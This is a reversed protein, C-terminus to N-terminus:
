VKGRFDRYRNYEGTVKFIINMILDARETSLNSDLIFTLNKCNEYVFVCVDEFSDGDYRVVVKEINSNLIEYKIYDAKEFSLDLEELIADFKSNSTFNKDKIFYKKKMEFETKSVHDIHRIIDCEISSLENVIGGETYEVYENLEPFVKLFSEQSDIKEEIM